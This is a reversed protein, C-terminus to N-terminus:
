MQTLGAIITGEKSAKRLKPRRTISRKTRTKGLFNNSFKLESINLAMADKPITTIPQHGKPLMPEM